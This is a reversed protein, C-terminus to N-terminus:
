VDNLIRKIDDLDDFNIRQLTTGEIAELQIKEKEKLREYTKLDISDYFSDINNNLMLYYYQTYQQENLGLRNIRDRSQLMHTLNFSYEFYVADHCNKHLSVSEALTHPNSILVDISNDKFEQILIERDNQSVSGNIVACKIGNKNLWYYIENLTDVFIAWAIVKKGENVLKKILEIGEIFKTTMNLSRIFSIEEKTYNEYYQEGKVYERQIIPAIDDPEDNDGFLYFLDLDNMKNNLLLKPNCSAELLSIYLALINGRKRKYIIEYLKAEKKSMNVKIICDKNPMPVNLQKKTTRCYFPYIKENINKIELASPNRLEEPKFRFFENYEDTYLVNLLNYIDVYSNPIPTGTLAVKYKANKCIALVANARNGGIAKIKHAEDLVLMTRPNILENVVDLIGELAEYNILILNKNGSELRLISIRDRKSKIINSDQIDILNLKRKSGFNETFEDKWALFSNKPGIMIIKDIQNIEKSSLYAYAGYVISTKGAGPVSFNASKIMSVIHFADWMQPERLKRELEQNVIKSFKKYKDLVIENRSKIDIGLNKRTEIEMDFKKIYLLLDDNVILDFKYRHAYEELKNIIKKITVYSLGVKFIIKKDTFTQVYKRIYIKYLLDKEDIININTINNLILQEDKKELIYICQSSM